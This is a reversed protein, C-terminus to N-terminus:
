EEESNKDYFGAALVFVRGHVPVYGFQRALEYLRGRTEEGDTAYMLGDLHGRGYELLERGESCLYVWGADNDACMLERLARIAQSAGGQKFGYM